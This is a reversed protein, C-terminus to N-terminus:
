NPPELLNEPRTALYSYIQQFISILEPIANMMSNLGQLLEDVQAPYEHALTNRIERLETWREASSILNLKELKNLRDIFPVGETPEMLAQLTQPFLANGMTDQLRTFRFVIADIDRIDDPKLGTFAETTLPFTTELSNTAHQLRTIHTQCIAVTQRLKLIHVEHTM